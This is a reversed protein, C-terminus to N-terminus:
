SSGSQATASVCHDAHLHPRSAIAWTWLELVNDYSWKLCLSPLNLLYYLVHLEGIMPTPLDGFRCQGPAGTTVEQANTVAAWCAFAVTLTVIKLKM